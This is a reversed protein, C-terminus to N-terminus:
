KRKLYKTKKFFPLRVCKYVLFSYYFTFCSLTCLFSLNYRMRTAFFCSNNLISARQGYEYSLISVVLPVCGRIIRAKHFANNWIEFVFYCFSPSGIIFWKKQWVFHSCRGCLFIFAVFLWVFSLVTLCLFWVNIWLVSVHYM